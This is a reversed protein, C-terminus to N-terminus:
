EYDVVVVGKGEIEDLVEAREADFLRDIAVVLDGDFFRACEIGLAHEDRGAGARGVFCAYGDGYYFGECAFDGDEADAEAVLGHGLVKPALDYPGISEHVALCRGDGM